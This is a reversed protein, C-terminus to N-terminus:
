TPFCYPELQASNRVVPLRRGLGDPNGNCGGCWDNDFNARFTHRGATVNAIVQVENFDTPSTSFLEKRGIRQGDLEFSFHANEDGAQAASARLKFVYQGEEPAPGVLLEGTNGGSDVIGNNDFIGIEDGAELGTIADQFIILQSQGTTEIDVNYFQAFSLSFLIISLPLSKLIKM